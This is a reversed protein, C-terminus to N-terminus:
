DLEEDDSQLHDYEIRKLRFLVDELLRRNAAIGDAILGFMGLNFGSILLISALILSQIHGSGESQLMFFLYRGGLVVGILFVFSGSFLFLKLPKYQTYSRIIIGASKSIYSTVSKFLRSDRLKENTSIPVSEIIVKNRGSSIITELTYSYDNILHLRMAAERSYARFGSAADIVETRSVKRVVWSGLKELQKKLPSFHEITEVQRDGVVVETKGDVIPKVLEPIDNGNYQNDGDTNVIIDAGCRLCADIGAMFAKALGKNKTFRVIHHIGLNRAVEITKDSSGDDIILYEIETIGEIKRPLDAFTVPLTKEENYCPIQIILKM